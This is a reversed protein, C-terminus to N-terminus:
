SPWPKGALLLDYTDAGAATPSLKLTHPKDPNKLGLAQAQDPLVREPKGGELLQGVEAADLRVGYDQEIAARVRVKEDGLTRFGIGALWASGVLAVVAFVAVLAIVPARRGSRRLSPAFVIPLCILVTAVLLVLLAPVFVLNQNGAFYPIPVAQITV